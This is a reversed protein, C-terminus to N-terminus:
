NDAVVEFELIKSEAVMHGTADYVFVAWIYHAPLLRNPIKYHSNSVEVFDLITTNHTENVLWVRYHDATEQAEWDLKITETSSIIADPQPVLLPLDCDNEEGIVEFRAYKSMVAIQINARNFATVQWHYHCNLRSLVATVENDTVREGVFVAAGKEPALYVEYAVAEPHTRWKLKVTGTAGSAVTKQPLNVKGIPGIVRLANDLLFLPEIKLVQQDAVVFQSIQSTEETMIQLPMEEEDDLHIMLAYRGPVIDEIVYTGDTETVAAYRRGQCAGYQSFDQCVVVTYDAAAAGDGQLFQGYITSKSSDPTPVKKPPLAPPTPSPNVVATPVPTPAFVEPTPEQCGVLFLVWMLISFCWVRAIM